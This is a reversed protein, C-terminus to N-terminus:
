KRRYAHWLSGDQKELGALEEAEMLWNSATAVSLPKGADTLAPFLFAGGIGPREKLVADIAARAPQSLPATWEKACKDSDARWLIAGFQGVDLKLDAYKLSLIASIRRGTSEVLGLVEVLYSRASRRGGCRSAMKVLHAVALVKRFRDETALPRRPNKEKPIAYGRTVDETMLYRADEDQWRTAWRLVTRLWVLDAAITSDRVVQPENNKM